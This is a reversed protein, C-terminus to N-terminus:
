AKISRYKILFFGIIFGENQFSILTSYDITGQKWWSWIGEWNIGHCAAASVQQVSAFQGQVSTCGYGSFPLLM